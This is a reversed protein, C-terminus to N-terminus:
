RKSRRDDVIAGDKMEVVRDTETEALERDHTVLIITKGGEKQIQHLLAVIEGSTKTDLNGTPEDALLLPPNM